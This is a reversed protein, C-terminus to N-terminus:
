LKSENGVEKQMQIQLSIIKQQIDDFIEENSIGDETNISYFSQFVNETLKEVDQSIFLMNEYFFNRADTVITWANNEDAESIQRQKKIRADYIVFLKGESIKIKKFVQPYINFLQTTKLEAKLFEKQLQHKYQEVKKTLSVKQCYVYLAFGGSFITSIASLLSNHDLM